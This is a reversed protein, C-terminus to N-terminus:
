IGHGINNVIGKSKPTLFRENPTTNNRMDRTNTVTQKGYPLIDGVPATQVHRAAETAGIVIFGPSHGM